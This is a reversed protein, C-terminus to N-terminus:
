QLYYLALCPTDCQSNWLASSSSSEDGDVSCPERKEKPLRVKRCSTSASIRTCRGLIMRTCSWNVDSNYGRISAIDGTKIIDVFGDSAPRGHPRRRRRRRRPLKRRWTAPPENTQRRKGCSGDHHASFSGDLLYSYFIVSYFCYFHYRRRRRDATM